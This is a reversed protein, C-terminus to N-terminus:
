VSEVRSIRRSMVVIIALLVLIILGGVGCAISLIMVNKNDGLQYDSQADEEANSGTWRRAVDLAVNYYNIRQQMGASGGITWFICCTVQYYGTHTCDSGGPAGLGADSDTRLDKCGKWGFISPDAAGSSFWWTGTLFAVDPDAFIARAANTTSAGGPDSALTAVCSCSSCSIGNSRGWSDFAQSVKPINRCAPLWNSPTMHLSGGGNDLPQHFITLGATDHRVQSLFVAIRQPCNMGYAKLASNLPAVFRSFDASSQM